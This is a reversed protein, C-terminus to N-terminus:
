VRKTDRMLKKRRSTIIMVMEPNFSRLLVRSNGSYNLYCNIYFLIICVQILYNFLTM